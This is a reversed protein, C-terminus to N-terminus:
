HMELGYPLAVTEQHINISTLNLLLREPSMCGSPTLSM